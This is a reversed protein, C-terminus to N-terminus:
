VDMEDFMFMQYREMTFKNLSIQVPIRYKGSWCANCFHDNPLHACDLMGELSIYGVSDVELFDRIEDLDRNHALLEEKTPFDV